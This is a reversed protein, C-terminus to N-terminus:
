DFNQGCLNTGLNLRSTEDRMIILGSLVVSRLERGADTTRFIISNESCEHGGKTAQATNDIKTPVSKPEFITNRLKQAFHITISIQM